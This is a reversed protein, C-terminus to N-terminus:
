TRGFCSVVRARETIRRKTAEGYRRALGQETLGSTVITPLRQGGRGNYRAQMVDLVVGLEGARPEPEFGVEDLVLLECGKAKAIVPPDDDEREASFGKRAHETRARHLDLASAFRTGAAIRVADPTKALDLIRRAAAVAATTKGCGTDGLLVLNDRELPRWTRVAALIDAHVFDGIRPNGLHAHAMAPLSRRAKALVMERLEKAEDGACKPCLDGREPVQENCRCRHVHVTHVPEVNGTGISQVIGAAPSTALTTTADELKRRDSRLDELVRAASTQAMFHSGEDSGGFDEPGIM